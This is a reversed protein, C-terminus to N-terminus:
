EGVEGEPGVVVHVTRDPRFYTTAAVQIDALKIAEYAAEEEEWRQYGFGYLEDLATVMAIGGLDQRAIKKRGVVKAKARKLETETLGEQCISEIERTLEEDVRQANESSTGAYFAFFGPVLGPMHQAGVYYALGLRDRIRIFLRSGLDSCAEQLLDLAYRDEAQFTTGQAAVIVVVQKKDVAQRVTLEQPAPIDLKPFGVADIRPWTEPGLVRRVTAQVDSASIDGFVSIVCNEPARYTAFFEQIQSLSLAEVSEPTGLADLGYGCSGFLARRVVRFGTQLIQDSQSRIAALQVVRERELEDAPFTPRLVLDSLIELGLSLDEKFVEVSIGFSNSAGYTDVQGGVSEIADVIEASSRGGAGKLLLKATLQTLGNTAATEALVGARFVARLEVFPLRHDQKTLLRLGNGFSSLAIANQQHTEVAVRTTAKTGEPLLGALTRNPETLYQCAVRQVDDVKLARVRELYRNSFELDHAAMWNGGLDQAQGQMTKKAGLAGALFIKRAKEIEEATFGGEKAREVEALVAAWADACKVGDAVGSVGILGPNGPSYTWADISHVLGLQDRVRQFLRSSRGEGLITGLVDLAPVDQHCIDPIHWGFHFYGLEIPAEEVYERSAAQRPEGPLVTPPLPRCPVASYIDGIQQTVATADVDGIVVFFVNAPSYKEEYYAVVDTRKIRNFVDPYGIIPYRYPSVRYASEFLRRSSSRGPDDDNMDMERRIVDLEKVLEDEPLTANMMIDCLIDVITSVGEKPSNVWYVTRDFSTYANMYGGLDQVEQDIRGAGRTKTGKFLMHELVHSLGAGIWRGENVSGTCCWAQASVVPASRDERVIITLGNSLTTLWAGQQISPSFKHGSDTNREGSFNPM